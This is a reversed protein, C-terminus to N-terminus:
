VRSFNLPVEEALESLDFNDTELENEPEKLMIQKENKPALEQDANEPLLNFITFLVHADLLTFVNGNNQINEVTELLKLKADEYGNPL